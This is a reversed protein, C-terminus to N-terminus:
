QGLASQLEPGIPSRGLEPLLRAQVRGLVRQDHLSELAFELIGATRRDGLVERLLDQDPSRDFQVCELLSGLNQREQETEALSRVIESAGPEDREELRSQTASASARVDALAGLAPDASLESVAGPIRACVVTVAATQTGDVALADRLGNAVMLRLRSSAMAARVLARAVALSDFHTPGSLVRLGHRLLDELYRPFNRALGDDVLELALEPGIPAVRALRCPDDADIRAVLDVLRQRMKDDWTAFVRGAAFVWTNRWHPSAAAIRLADFTADQSRTIRRAAMMEQLSRIEFGIGGTPRPALLLLRQTAAQELQDVVAVSEGAVDYGARSLLQEVRQRFEDLSLSATAGDALESRCQLEFGVEAHLEDIHTRYEQLLRSLANPKNTERRFVTDYYHEFLGYRDAPLQASAELVLTLVLVQLPTQMLPRLTDNNAAAELRVISRDRREQEDKLRVAAVQRGYAVAQTATLRALDLRGFQDPDIEETYGTPRTTVVVLLDANDTDADAAFSEIERILKRRVGRDTVEDLGDLILLWPWQRLWSKMHYPHVEGLSSTRDVKEAIWRLMTPQDDSTFRESYEALDIRVPWRRNRPWPAGIRDMAQRVGDVVKQHQEGVHAGDLIAARYVQALFRSVTSKGNGPGAAIVLHRQAPLFPADTRLCLDSVAVVHEIVNAHSGNSSAIPLDIVVDHLLTKDDPDAGAEEFYVYRDDLLRKAADARLAEELQGTPLIPSAERLYALVDGATLMGKFSSRVDPYSNLYVTLQNRDWIRWHRLRRARAAREQDKSGCLNKLHEKVLNTVNDFGGTGPVATLPLNTVFVLYHPMERRRTDPRTWEDLEDRIQATLWAANARGNSSVDDKMKVQFVTYGDWIEPIQGEATWRLVGHFTFDRGGDPGAGFAQVKPGLARAALAAALQQFTAPDLSDVQHSVSSNRAAPQEPISGVVTATVRCRVTAQWRRNTHHGVQRAM